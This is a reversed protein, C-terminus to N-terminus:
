PKRGKGDTVSFLYADKTDTYSFDSKWGQPNYGGFVHGHNAKIFM